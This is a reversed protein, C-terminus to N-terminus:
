RPWLSALMAAILKHYELFLTDFKPKSPVADEVVEVDGPLARRLEFAARRMHWDTTVLRLRKYKGAAVWAASESANSRTDVAAFDLTVCCAMTRRSVKYEAAFERPKVEPDVGSVLLHTSQKLRLLELGREIRGAGGTPVIIADSPAPAAPQPLFLAFWLFGFAWLTVLGGLFRRIV